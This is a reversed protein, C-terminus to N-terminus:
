KLYSFDVRTLGFEQVARDWGNTCLTRKLDELMNKDFGTLPYIKLQRERDGANKYKCNQITDKIDEKTLIHVREFWSPNVEKDKFKKDIYEFCENYADVLFLEKEGPKSNRRGIISESIHKM